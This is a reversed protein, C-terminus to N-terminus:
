ILRRFPTPPAALHKPTGYTPRRSLPLTPMPTRLRFDLRGLVINPDSPILSAGHLGSNGNEIKMSENEQQILKQNVLDKLLLWLMVPYEITSDDIYKQLPLLLKCEKYIKM